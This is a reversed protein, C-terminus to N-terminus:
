AFAFDSDLVGQLDLSGRAPAPPLKELNKPSLQAAIQERFDEIVDLSTYIEVLTERLISFFRATDAAHTGFSDHVLAVDTIGEQAAARVAMRLHTADLSQVFNPSLGSAQQRKSVM